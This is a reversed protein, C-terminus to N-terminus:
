LFTAKSISYQTVNKQQTWLRLSQTMSFSALSTISLVKPEVFILHGLSKISIPKKSAKLWKDTELRLYKPSLGNWCCIYGYGSGSTTQIHWGLIEQESEQKGQGTLQSPHLEASLSLLHCTVIATKMNCETAYYSYHIVSECHRHPTYKNCISQQESAQEQGNVNLWNCFSYRRCATRSRSLNRCHSWGPSMSRRLQCQQLEVSHHFM